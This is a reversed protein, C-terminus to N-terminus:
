ATPFFERWFFEHIALALMALAWVPLACLRWKPTSSPTCLADIMAVAVALALAMSGLVVFMSLVRVHFLLCIKGDAGTCIQVPGYAGPSQLANAAWVVTVLWTGAALLVLSM